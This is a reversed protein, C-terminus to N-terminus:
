FIIRKSIEPSVFVKILKPDERLQKLASELEELPVEMSFMKEPKIRQHQLLKISDNWDNGVGACSSVMKKENLVMDFPRVKMTDDFGTIGFGAVTGGPRLMEFAQEYTKVTGVAEIVYDAGRGETLKKVEGIIDKVKNVNIIFDAGMDQAIKLRSENDGIVIVPAAGRIKALV